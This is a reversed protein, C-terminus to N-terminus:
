VTHEKFNERIKILKEEVFTGKINERNFEIINTFFGKIDGKILGQFISDNKIEEEYSEQKFFGLHQIEKYSKFISNYILEEVTMRKELAMFSIKARIRM